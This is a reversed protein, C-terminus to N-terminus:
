SSLISDAINIVREANHQWTFQKDSILAQAAKQLRCLENFSTLAKILQEKFDDDSKPDFLLASEEDVIERINPTDPAIILTGAALYEFLKLPSAYETVSPQLAIDFKSVYEFAEQRSVLGTFQVQDEIGLRKAQAELEPRIDGEGVCIFQVNKNGVAEIAELARDLRHWPNIFGIFGITLTKKDAKGSSDQLIHIKNQNIGNHIVYVKSRSVGSNAVIIDGLVQTVPLLKTAHRWTFHEIIKALKPLSLRSYKMREDALPANVELLIPLRFLKALIVGVPQYLNYREYIFDPKFKVIAIALKCVIVLSYCLELIEYFWGPLLAKLRSAIGGEGGFDDKDMFRPCVFHIEHGQEILANTLEEIHVYQGDKSAVRHHYLIKM